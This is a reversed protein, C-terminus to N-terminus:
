GKRTLYIVNVLAKGEEIKIISWDLIINESVDIKAEFYKLSLNSSIPISIKKSFIKYNWDKSYKVMGSM